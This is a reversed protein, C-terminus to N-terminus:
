FKVGIVLNVSSTRSGIPNGLDILLVVSTLGSPNGCDIFLNISCLM